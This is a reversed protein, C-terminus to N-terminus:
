EKDAWCEIIGGSVNGVIGPHIMEATEIMIKELVRECEEALEKKTEVILEDHVQLVFFVERKPYHEKYFDTKRFRKMAGKIMESATGQQPNNLANNKWQWDYPHLHITRGLITKSIGINRSQKEKIWQSAVPFTEFFKDYMMQATDIDVKNDRAFGYPSLGFILGLFLAKAQKYEPTDKKVDKEFIEKAIEIYLKKGSNLIEILKPDQTNYAFINAEQGGYDKLVLVNGEGAIFCKRHETGTIINQLNPSSSSDRGTEALAINLSTYIRGDSEVNNLFNLGYTSVQKQAERFDLIDKVFEFKDYYPSLIEDGTSPVDLGLSKCVKLVQQWSGPNFPIFEKVEHRNKGRGVMKPVEVGYKQGLRTEVDDVIKQNRNAVEKWREVDLKFGGLELTTYVHPNYLNDWVLKDQESIIKQQEKDVLWTGIVDLASYEIQEWTMGGELNHFEKRVDKSMYCKLYRRVLDALTFDSYYNSWMLREILLTDRMNKRETIETWRKLHGLDFVSNHFVLTAKEIRKLFEPIQAEDFIIYASEGDFSGALSLFRGYPRHLQGEKLGALELDLAVTDNETLTPPLEQYIKTYTLTKM